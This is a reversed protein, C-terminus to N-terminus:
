MTKQEGAGRNASSKRQNGYSEYLMRQRMGSLMMKPCREATWHLEKSATPHMQAGNKFWKPVMNTNNGLYTQNRFVHTEHVRFVVKQYILHDLTQSKQRSKRLKVKEKSKKHIKMRPSGTTLGFTCGQTGFTSWFPRGPTVKSVWLRGLSCGLLYLIRFCAFFLSCHRWPRRKSAM